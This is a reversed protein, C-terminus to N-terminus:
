KMESYITSGSIVSFGLLSFLLESVQLELLDDSNIAFEKAL